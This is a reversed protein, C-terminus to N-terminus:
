KMILNLLLNNNYMIIGIKSSNIAELILNSKFLPLIISIIALLIYISLLARLLGIILGGSKNILRLIPLNAIFEAISKIFALIFRSIGLLFILTLIRIGYIALNSSVYNVANVKTQNLAEKVFKNIIEVVNKSFNSQELDILEGDAIPTGSLTDVIKETLWEDIGTREIIFNSVPKFLIFAIILSAIFIVIKFLVSTLGKKYGWITSAMITLIIVLDVIVGGIAIKSVDM